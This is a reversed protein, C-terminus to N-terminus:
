QAIVTDAELDIIYNYQYGGQFLNGTPQRVSKNYEKREGNYEEVIRLNLPAYSILPLINVKAVNELVDFAVMGTTSTAHSIMGSSISLTSQDTTPASIHLSKITRNDRIGKVKFYILPCLPQLKIVVSRPELHSLQLVESEWWYYAEDNYLYETLGTQPNIVPTKDDNTVDTSLAYFRYEGDKLKMRDYIPYIVGIKSAVYVSMYNWAWESPDKESHYVFINIFVDKSIPEYSLPMDVTTSNFSYVKYQAISCTLSSFTSLTDINPYSLSDNLEDEVYIYVRDKSCSTLWSLSLCLLFITLIYQHTRKM